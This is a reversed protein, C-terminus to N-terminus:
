LNQQQFKLTLINRIKKKNTSKAYSLKIIPIVRGNIVFGKNKYVRKAYEEDSEKGKNKKIPFRAVFQEAM